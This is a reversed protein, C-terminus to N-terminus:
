AQSAAQRANPYRALSAGPPPRPSIWEHWFDLLEKEAVARSYNRNIFEAGRRAMGLLAGPDRQYRRIVEEVCRAFGLIDGQEIPFSFEPRLIERAGNGHNGIVICGCSMAEAAPLSWGEEFCFNLFLLSERLTAAVERESKGHIPALTFSDLVGRYRLINVVQEIDEYRKRTLFAIKRAKTETFSFIESNIYNRIRKIKLNPFVYQLYRRSDESVVIAALVDPHTYPSAFHGGELPYGRFTLYAGQNIIVKKIGAAFRMLKLAWVAPVVVIDQPTLRLSTATRIPVDNEFWRCRFGEQGHVVYANLGHRCLLEVHQYIVKIGGAPEAVDPCLYFIGTGM